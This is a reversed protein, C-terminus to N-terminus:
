LSKCIIAVPFRQDSLFLKAISMRKASKYLMEHWIFLRDRCRFFKILLGNEILVRVFYFDFPNIHVFINCLPHALLFTMILLHLDKLSDLHPEKPGIITEVHSVQCLFKALKKAQVM